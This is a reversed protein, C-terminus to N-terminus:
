KSIKRHLLGGALVHNLLGPEKKALKLVEELEPRYWEQTPELDPAIDEYMSSRAMAFCKECQHMFPTVGANIDKTKTKHGQPCTYVNVRNSLDIGTYFESSEVERILNQYRKIIHKKNM